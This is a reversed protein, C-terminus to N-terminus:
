RRGRPPPPPPLEAAVLARLVDPYVADAKARMEGATQDSVPHQALAYLAAPAPAGLQTAQYDAQAAFCDTLIAVAPLGARELGIVDHM